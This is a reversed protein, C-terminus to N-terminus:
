YRNIFEHLEEKSSRYTFTEDLLFYSGKNVCAGYAFKAFELRNSEYTFLTCISAIQRTNMWNNRVISKALDLRSSDFTEKSLIRVAAEFDADDM